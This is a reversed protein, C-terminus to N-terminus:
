RGRALTDGTAGWRARSAARIPAANALRALNLHRRGKGDPVFPVEVGRVRVRRIAFRHPHLEEEPTV